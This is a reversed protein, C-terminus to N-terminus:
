WQQKNELKTPKNSQVQHVTQSEFGLELETEKGPELVKGRFLIPREHTNILQLKM